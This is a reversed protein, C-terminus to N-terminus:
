PLSNRMAPYGPVPAHHRNCQALALPEVSGAGDRTIPKGVADAERERPAAMARDLPDPRLAVRVVRRHQLHPRAAPADPADRRRGDDRADRGVLHEDDVMAAATQHRVRLAVEAEAQAPAGADQPAHEDDAHPDGRRERRIEHAEATV